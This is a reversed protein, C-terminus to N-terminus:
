RFAAPIGTRADPPHPRRGFRFGRRSASGTGAGRGDALAAFGVPLYDFGRQGFSAASHGDELVQYM